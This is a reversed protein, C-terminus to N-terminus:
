DFSERVPLKVDMAVTLYLFGSALQPPGSALVQVMAEIAPRIPAQDM